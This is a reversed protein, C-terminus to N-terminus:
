ELCFSVLLHSTFCFYAGTTFLIETAMSIIDGAAGTRLNNQTIFCSGKECLGKVLTQTIITQLFYIKKGCFCFLIGKRAPSPIQYFADMVISLAYVAYESFKIKKRASKAAAATTPVARVSKILTV